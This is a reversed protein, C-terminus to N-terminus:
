PLTPPRPPALPAPTPREPEARPIGLFAFLLVALPVVILLLSTLLYHPVSVGPDGAYLRRTPPEAISFQEYNVYFL